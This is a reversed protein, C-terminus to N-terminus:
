APALGRPTLGQVPTGSDDYDASVHYTYPDDTDRDFSYSGDSDSTSSQCLLGDSDRILRVTAGSVAVGTEHHLVTGSITKTPSTVPWDAPGGGGIDVTGVTGLVISALGTATGVGSATGVTGAVSSGLGTVTCSGSASGTMAGTSSMAGTADGLGTASGTTGLVKGTVGDAAGSGSATGTTDALVGLKPTAIQAVVGSQTGTYFTATRGSIPIGAVEFEFSFQITEGPEFIVEALTGTTCTATVEGALVPLSVSNSASGLLTRTFSPSPGVRYVYLRLTGTAATAGNHGYRLGVGYTGAPYFRRAGSVSNMDSPAIAWGYLSQDFDSGSATYPDVTRNTAGGTGHVTTSTGDAAGGPADLLKRVDTGWMSAGASAAVPIYLLTINGFAV